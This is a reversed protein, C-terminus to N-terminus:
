YTENIQMGALSWIEYGLDSSDHSPKLAASLM